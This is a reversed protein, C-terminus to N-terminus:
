IILVLLGRMYRYTIIFDLMGADCGISVTPILGM